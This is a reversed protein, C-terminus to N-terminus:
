QSEWWTQWRKKAVFREVVSDTDTPGFDQKTLERLAAHATNAVTEDQDVLCEILNPVLERAQKRAAAKAAA